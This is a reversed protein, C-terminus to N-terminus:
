RKKLISILSDRTKIFKKIRTISENRNKLHEELYCIKLEYALDLTMLTLERTRQQQRYETYSSMSIIVILVCIIFIIVPKNTSPQKKNEM